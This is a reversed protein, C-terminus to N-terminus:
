LVRQQPISVQKLHVLKLGALCLNEASDVGRGELRLNSFGWMAM